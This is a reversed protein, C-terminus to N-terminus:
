AIAIMDLMDEEDLWGLKEVFQKRILTIIVFGGGFTFASIRMMTLFLTTCIKRRSPM